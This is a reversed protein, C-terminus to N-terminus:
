VYLKTTLTKISKKIIPNTLLIGCCRIRDQSLLIDTYNPAKTNIILFNLPYMFYTMYTM